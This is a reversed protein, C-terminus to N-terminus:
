AAETPDIPLTAQGSLIENRLAAAQNTLRTLRDKYETRFDRECDEIGQLIMALRKARDDSM